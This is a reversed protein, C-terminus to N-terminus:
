KKNDVDMMQAVDTMQALIISVEGETETTETNSTEKSALADNSTTSDKIMQIAMTNGLEQRNVVRSRNLMDKVQQSAVIAWDTTDMNNVPAMM